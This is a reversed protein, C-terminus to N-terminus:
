LLSTTPSLPRWYLRRLGKEDSELRHSIELELRRLGKPFNREVSRFRWGSM